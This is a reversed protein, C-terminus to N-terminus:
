VTEDSTEGSDERLCINKILCSFLRYFVACFFKLTKGNDNLSSISAEGVGWRHGEFRSFTAKFM